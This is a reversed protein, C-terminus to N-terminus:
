SAAAIVAALFIAYQVIDAKEIIAKMCQEQLSSAGIWDSLDKATQRSPNNHFNRLKSFAADCRPFTRCQDSGQVLACTVPQALVGGIIGALDSIPDTRTGYHGRYYGTEVPISGTSGRCECVTPSYLTPDYPDQIDTVSRSLLSVVALFSPEVLCIVFPRCVFRFLVRQNGLIDPELCDVGRPEYVIPNELRETLKERVRSDKVAILKAILCANTSFPAAQELSRIQEELLAGYNVGPEGGKSM